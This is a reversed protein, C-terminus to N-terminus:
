LLYTAILIQHVADSKVSCSTFAILIFLSTHFRSSYMCSFPKIGPCLNGSHVPLEKQQGFWYSTFVGSWECSLKVTSLLRDVAVRVCSVLANGTHTHPLDVTQMLM